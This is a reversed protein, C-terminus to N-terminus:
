RRHAKGPPLLIGGSAFAVFLEGRALFASLPDVPRPILSLM